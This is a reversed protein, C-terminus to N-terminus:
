PMPKRSRKWLVTITIAQIVTLLRGINTSSQSIVQDCAFGECWLNMFAHLFIPVWLNEWRVLLWAYFVGGLAIIGIEGLIDTMNARGALTTYHAIGFVGASVLVSGMFSWGARRYLQLFFYGRFLFEETLPALISTLFISLVSISQNLNLNLSFIVLMPLSALLSIGLGRIFSAGLDLEQFAGKIDFHHTVNIGVFCVVVWFLKWLITASPSPLLEFIPRSGLVIVFFLIALWAYQGPTRTIQDQNKM